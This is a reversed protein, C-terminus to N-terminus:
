ILVCVVRVRAHVGGCSWLCVSVPGVLPFYLAHTGHLPLLYAFLLFADDFKYAM